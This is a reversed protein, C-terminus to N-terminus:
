TGILNVTTEEGAMFLFMCVSILERRSVPVGKSKYQRIVKSVLDNSLNTEKQTLFTDLYAIFQRAHEDLKVLQSLSLYVDLCRLVGTALKKLQIYDTLPLGMIRTMTMAPLPEAFEKIVDFYPTKISGLLAQINESIITDVERDDWAEMLLSRLQTHEPPNMMVIFRNMADTIAKLDEEKNQLYHVQRTMWDIRNGSRYDGANLLISKIDAHRTLIFDGSQSQHVPSEQRLRAYMPYPNARNAPANPEWLRDM